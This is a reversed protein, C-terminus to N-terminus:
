EPAKQCGTCSGAPLTRENEHDKSWGNCHGREHRFLLGTTYGRTRMVEDKVMVVLCSKDNHWSCALLYPTSARDLKCVAYLEELTDVIRITLDGEYDHDYEVPPFIKYAPRVPTAPTNSPGVPVTVVPKPYIQAHAKIGAFVALVAVFIVVPRSM